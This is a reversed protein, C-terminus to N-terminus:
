RPRKQKEPDDNKRASVRLGPSEQTGFSFGAHGPDTRNYLFFLGVRVPINRSRAPGETFEAM